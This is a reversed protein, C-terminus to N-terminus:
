VPSHLQRLISEFKEVIADPNVEPRESHRKSAAVFDQYRDEDSWMLEIAEVWADIDEVPVVIGGPGTAIELAPVNGAIVPIGNAQAELIVRPRSNVRYPVMLVRADGYLGPGPPRSGRFEVNSLGQLQEDLWRREDAALDWSQQLVFPIGPLRAAVRFFIDGGHSHQAPNIALVARRTSSTRTVEVDVVSPVFHCTHGRRVMEEVLPDANAVLADPFWDSEIDDLLEEGRMYYVGPVGQERCWQHIRRWRWRSVTSVVVADPRHKRAIARLANQPNATGHHQLGELEFTRRPAPFRDRLFAAWSGFINGQWRVSADSLTDYCWRQIKAPRVEDVIFQVDYGRRVLAKALERQSRGSGGAVVSSVFLLRM